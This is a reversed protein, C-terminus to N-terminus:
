NKLLFSGVNPIDEIPFWNEEWGQCSCVRCPEFYTIYLQECSTQYNRILHILHQLFKIFKREQVIDWEQKLCSFCIKGLYKVRYFRIWTINVYHCSLGKHTSATRGQLLNIKSIKGFHFLKLCRFSELLIKVSGFHFDLNFEFSKLVNFYECM